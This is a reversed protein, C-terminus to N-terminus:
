LRDRFEKPPEYPPDDTPWDRLMDLTRSPYLPRSIRPTMPNFPLEENDSVADLLEHLVEDPGLPPRCRRGPFQHNQQVKEAHSVLDLDSRKRRKPHHAHRHGQEDRTINQIRLSYRVSFPRTPSTKELIHMNPTSEHFRIPANGEHGLSKFLDDLVDQYYEQISAAGNGRFFFKVDFPDLFRVKRDDTILISSKPDPFDFRIRNKRLKSVAQDVLSRDGAQVLRGRARETMIGVIRGDRKVHGIVGFTLDSGQMTKFGQSIWRIRIASDEDWAMRLDVERGRWFGCWEDMSLFKTVIIDKEDVIEWGEYPDCLVEFLPTKTRRFHVEDKDGVRLDVWLSRGFPLKEIETQVLGLGRDYARAVWAFGTLQGEKYAQEMHLFMLNGDKLLMYFVEKGYNAGVPCIVVGSPLLTSITAMISLIM